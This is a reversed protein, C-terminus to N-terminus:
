THLPMGELGERIEEESPDANDRLLDAAAM